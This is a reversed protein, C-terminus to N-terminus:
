KPGTEPGRQVETSGQPRRPAMEAGNPGQPAVKPRRQREWPASLSSDQRRGHREPTDQGWGLKDQGREFGDQFWKRRIKPRAPLRSVKLFM